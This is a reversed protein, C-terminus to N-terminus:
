YVPEVQWFNVEVPTKRGFVTIVVRLRQRDRYVAEIEGCFDAFPGDIIRVSDGEKFPVEAVPAGMEKEKGSLSLVVAMEEDKVPQPGRGKGAFYLVGRIGSIVKMLEEKEEMKIWIYGPYLRKDVTIKGKKGM